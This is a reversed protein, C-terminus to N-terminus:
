EQPPPVLFSETEDAPPTTTDDPLQPRQRDALEDDATPLFPSTSVVPGGGVLTTAAIFLLLAIAMGGGVGVLRRRSAGGLTWREGGLVVAREGAVAPLSAGEGIRRLMPLSNLMPRLRASYRVLLSAVISSVAVGLAIGGLDQFWDEWEPTRPPIFGQIIETAGGYMALALVVIWRPVRRCALLVVAALVSFSLLHALPMLTHLIPPLKGSVSIVKAPDPSLLLLSLFAFYALCAIKTTHRM